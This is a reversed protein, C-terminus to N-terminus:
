RERRERGPEPWESYSTAMLTAGRADVTTTEYIDITSMTRAVATQEVDGERTGPSRERGDFVWTPPHRGAQDARPRGGTPGRGSDGPLVVHCVTVTTRLNTKAL